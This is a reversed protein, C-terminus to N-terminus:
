HPLRRQRLFAPTDLYELEEPEPLPPTGNPPKTELVLEPQEKIPVTPQPQAESSWRHAAPREGAAQEAPAFGTAIVTVKVADAMSENLVIGFNLEVDDSGTAKRVLQCAESVEHLALRSSGTFNILLNHAGQIGDDEVLPSGISKRAAELAANEGRATATGLMAYGQGLMTSRIDSFDRNIFGPTTMIDVIDEVTRRLFDHGMRFAELVSTGRPALVLLRENPITFVTDVTAALEALGKEAQRV